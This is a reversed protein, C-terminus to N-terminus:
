KEVLEKAERLLIRAILWEPWNEGLDGSELKPLNTEFVQTAQALSKRAEEPQKLQQQAMALVAGASVVTTYNTGSRVLSKKAWDVANHLHGQRYEVLGKVLQFYPLRFHNTGRTVAVEALGAPVAWGSDKPQLSMEMAAEAVTEPDEGWTTVSIVRRRNNYGNTDGTEALLPGLALTWRVDAKALQSLDKVAAQWQGQQGYLYARFMLYSGPNPEKDVARTIAMMAKEWSQRDESSGGLGFNVKLSQHKLDRAEALKGQQLLVWALAALSEAVQRDESGLLKKRMALAERHMAEAEALKGQQQLVWALAALPEAVQRDESGLLKKRMALAERHMAEAEALKGQQQLVEALGALSQAVQRDENGLLKKRMVLGERYMAEAEALKSERRLVSTLGDQLQLFTPIDEPMDNPDRIQAALAERYTAEADKFKGMRELASARTCSSLSDSPDAAALVKEDIAQAEGRVTEAQELKGLADYIGALCRLSVAVQPSENGLLRQQMALAERCVAEAEVLKRQELLVTALVTLRSAVSLSEMGCERKTIALAERCMAEAEELKGQGKLMNALNALFGAVLGRNNGSLKRGMAVAERLMTEAEAKKGQRSLNLAFNNLTVAIERHEPGFAKRQMALTQRFLEEAQTLNGRKEVVRALARLYKAVDPHRPGLLKQRIALAERRAAEAEVLKREWELAWALTELSEAVVLNERGLLSIQLALAKRLPLEAKHYQSISVYAKGITLNVRAQTEPHDKLEDDVRTAAKDLMGRLLVTDRGKAEEPRVSNLMDELFSAVTQAQKEARKARVMQWTSVVVGAVLLLILVAATALGFRHRSVYKSLRYTASPAAATVPEDSLHREVDHALGNATEYRRRRDKELCKMVIWDLDGRVEKWQPIRLASHPIASPPATSQRTRLASHPTAALKTSPKVPETERIIRRMEDLGAKMLTEPDFPPKGTLIEYLLVGLAYIDTRTDIDLGSLEAQEPSMYAPTGIFQQFATFVTKDTLPQQTAKAIGFDIVKPVPVGDHLTVLINSPKIDRHIIGKQHAHQIAHCVQMFLELREKTNLHNQDCYDTIKIGKVLEMVFYPRGTDTAGADLVKAINPHDMLALAQREAEFRAVVSKTDMGLKIVKFAVRRRIPEAQEAMYVVGCGGEGIQELLKYHGIRDGPKESVPLSELSIQITAGPPPPTPPRRKGAKEEPPPSPSGAAGPNAALFTRAGSGHELFDNTPQAAALLAEVRQRLQEDEACAGKLFAARAEPTPLGMAENFLSEERQSKDNM